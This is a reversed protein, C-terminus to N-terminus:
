VGERSGHVPAYEHLLTGRADRLTLAIWEHPEAAAALFAALREGFLDLDGPGAFADADVDATVFAGPSADQRAARTARTTRVGLLPRFAAADPKAGPLSALAALNVLALAEALYVGDTLQAMTAKLLQVWRWIMDGELMAPVSASVPTINRFTVLAPSTPTPVCVDGEGLRSARAGDTVLAEVDVSAVGALTARPDFGVFALTVALASSAVSAAREVRYLLPMRGDALLPPPFFRALPQVTQASLDSRVLCVQELAYVQAEPVPLGVACRNGSLALSVAAARYVNVAPVCHLRLSADDLALRKPLPAELRVVIEFNSAEHGESLGFLALDAIDVFAFSEPWIFYTRLDLRADRPGNGAPPLLPPPVARVKPAGPQVLSVAPAGPIQGTVLGTSRLLISRLELAAAIPMALYVRLAGQLGPMKAGELAALRLRIETREAALAVSELRWPRVDVDLCSRFMCPAGDVPRSGFMAGAEVRRTEKMTAEPLLEVMTASPFPRLLEPRLSDVIPHVWEPADDDLRQRLRAAAFAVNQVLRSVGVDADRGLMPAIKPHETGVQECLRHLYELEAAYADRFM